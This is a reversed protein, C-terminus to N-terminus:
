IWFSREMVKARIKLKIKNDLSLPGSGFYTLILAGGLMAMNKLFMIHQIQHQMPDQVNWYAHMMFSVPFLFIVLLWAGWKAKFGLLISLAGAIAIIGAIPVFFSAAPVGASAAYNITASSFHKLGSSIFITTFLIRGLLPLYKM